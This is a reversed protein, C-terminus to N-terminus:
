GHRRDCHRKLNRTVDEDCLVCYKRVRGGVRRYEIGDPLPLCAHEQPARRNLVRGCTRCNFRSGRIDANITEGLYLFPSHEIYFSAQSRPTPALVYSALRYGDGTDKIVVGCKDNLYQKVNLNQLVVRMYANRDVAGFQVEEIVDGLHQFGLQRIIQYAHHSEERFTKRQLFFTFPLEEGRDLAILHRARFYVEKRKMFEDIYDVGSCEGDATFPYLDQEQQSQIARKWNLFDEINGGNMIGAPPPPRNVDLGFCKNVTWAVYQRHMPLTMDTGKMKYGTDDDIIQSKAIERKEDLVGQEEAGTINIPSDEDDDDDSCSQIVIAWQNMILYKLLNERYKTKERVHRVSNYTLRYRFNDMVDPTFDERLQADLNYSVVCEIRSRVYHDFEERSVFSKETCNGVIHVRYDDCDRVRGLMQVAQKPSTNSANFLGFVVDFHPMREGDDDYFTVDVGADMTPSFAVVQYNVWDDISSCTKTYRNVNLYEVNLSALLGDMRQISTSYAICVHKGQQICRALDLKFARTDDYVSCSRTFETMEDPLIFRAQKVPHRRKRIEDRWFEMDQECLLADMGIFKVGPSTAYVGFLEICMTSVPMNVFQEMVSSIEDCIVCEYKRPDKLKDLSNLCVIQYDADLTKATEGNSLYCGFRTFRKCLNLALAQRHVIILVTRFHNLAYEVAATTKGSGTPARIFLKDQNYVHLNDVFVQEDTFQIYEEDDPKDMEKCRMLLFEYGMEAIRANACREYEEALHTRPLLLGDYALGAKYISGQQEVLGEAVLADLVTLMVDCELTLLVNTLRSAKRNFCHDGVPVHSFLQDAIDLCQDFEQKLQATFSNDALTSKMLNWIQQSGNLASNVFRKLTVREGELECNFLAPSIERRMREECGVRDSVYARLAPFVHGHRAMLNYLLTPNSARLDLETYMNNTIFSRLTRPLRILSGASYYRGYPGTTGKSWTHEVVGYESDPLPRLKSLLPGIQDTNVLPTNVIRYLSPMHVYEESDVTPPHNYSLMKLLTAQWQM